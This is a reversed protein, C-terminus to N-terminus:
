RGSDACCYLARYLARDRVVAQVYGRTEPYPIRDVFAAPDEAGPLARWRDVPRSGANYSALAWVIEGRYRRTLAALHAAGLHLNADPVTLLDREWPVGLRSATEAATSPLLQMLGVAGARSVVAPRFNSEQRILAVLLYPDLDFKRAEAEILDRWPWPFVVRLVRPDNLTLERAARWGLSIALATRKGGLLAEAFTLLESATSASAFTDILTQAESEMGAADLLNLQALTVLVKPEPEGLQPPDIVPGPLGAADRAILGYYGLSDERALATWIERAAATDGQMLRTRALRDRAALAANGEGRAAELYWGAAEDLRGLEAARDGLRLRAELSAPHDPHLELLRRYLKEAEGWRRAQARSNAALLLASAALSHQPHDEAFAALARSGAEGGRLRLVLRAAAYAARVSVEGERSAARTYLALAEGGRGLDELVQGASFLLEPSAQEVGARELARRLLRWADQPARSQRFFAAAELVPDEPEAGLLPALRRAAGVTLFGPGVRLAELFLRRARLTDGRSLALEAAEGQLGADSLAQEAALPDGARSLAASRARAVAELPLGATRRLLRSARATDETLRAERLALWGGIEGLRRRADRYYRAAARLLGAEEFAVGARAELIGRRVGVSRAALAAYYRGAREYNGLRFEAAAILAAAEPWLESSREIPHGDLLEKARAPRGLVLQGRARELVEAPELRAPPDGRWRVARHWVGFSVSGEPEEELSGQAVLGQPAALAACWWLAAKLLALSSLFRVPSM